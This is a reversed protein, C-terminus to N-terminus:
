VTRVRSNASVWNLIVNKSVFLKPKPTHNQLLFYLAFPHSGIPQHLRLCTRPILFQRLWLRPWKYIYHSSNGRIKSTKQQTMPNFPYPGFELHLNKQQIMPNFPYDLNWICRSWVSILKLFNQLFFQCNQTQANISEVDMPSSTSGM